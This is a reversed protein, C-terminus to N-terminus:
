MWRKRQEEGIQKRKEEEYSFGSGRKRREGLHVVYAMGEEKEKIKVAGVQISM